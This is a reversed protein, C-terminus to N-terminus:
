SGNNLEKQAKIKAIRQACIYKRYTVKLLRPAKNLDGLTIRGKMSCTWKGDICRLIMKGSPIPKPKTDDIM